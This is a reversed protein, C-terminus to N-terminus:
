AVISRMSLVPAALRDDGDITVHTRAEEPALSNTFIRWAMAEPITVSTGIAAAPPDVFTWADRDRRICWEGGSDGSVRVRVVAGDPAAIDRFAHPLARLFCDLVPAYLRPTMIGPRGVALRIQEQHHWRETLERAVDFWNPSRQEGAWSVGIAAEAMPDLSVFYDSLERTAVTMLSVLVRPSSRGYVLVGEANMRNVLDALDRDNRIPAAAPLARDRGLSLRRLATDLLHAAVQKVNWRPAVTPRTWDDEDLSELLAILHGDLEAFLHATLIPPPM